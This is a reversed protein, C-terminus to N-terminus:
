PLSGTTSRLVWGAQGAQHAGGANGAQGAQRAHGAQGAQRGQGAQGSEQIVQRVECILKALDMLSVQDM